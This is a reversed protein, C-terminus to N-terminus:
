DYAEILTHFKKIVDDISLLVNMSYFDVWLRKESVNEKFSKMVALIADKNKLIHTKFFPFFMRFANPLYTQSLMGNIAIEFNKYTIIKTYADYDRHGKHVGPENLFPSDNLVTILTMLVSRITQCSTWSEGKWTNLVSLCVKGNVYLNPNFRTKGDQTMYTLKPPTQPYNEPFELTFFYAGYQYPTETPGFIMAYGKLMDTDDHQYYIGEDVLPNKYIDTIDRILRKTTTQTLYIKKHANTNQSTNQDAM